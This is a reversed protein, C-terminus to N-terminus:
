EKNSKIKQELKAPSISQAIEKRKGNSVSILYYKDRHGNKTIILYHPTGSLDRYTVWCDENAKLYQEVDTM